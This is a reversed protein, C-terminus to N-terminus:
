PPTPSVGSSYVPAIQWTLTGAALSYGVFVLLVVSTWLPIQLIPYMWSLLFCVFIVFVLAFPYFYYAFLVGIMAIVLLIPQTITRRFEADYMKDIRDAMRKTLAELETHDTPTPKPPTVTATSPILSEQDSTGADAEAEEEEEQSGLFKFM